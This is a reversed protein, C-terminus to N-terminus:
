NLCELSGMIGELRSVFGVVAAEITAMWKPDREVRLIVMAATVDDIRPDYSVFDWWSRGTVWLSGYVQARYQGPVERTVLTRVHEGSSAPCKIELGGDTGILGDPSGGAAVNPHLLFGVETVENGSLDEYKQRAESEHDIGWQMARTTPVEHPDGTLREGILQYLYTDVSAARSIKGAPTVLEGFRSCTPLGLRAARWEATRQQM